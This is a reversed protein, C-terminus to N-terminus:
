QSQRDRLVGAIEDMEKTADKKANFEYEERDREELKELVKKRKTKEILKIKEEEASKELVEIEKFKQIIKRKLGERYGLSVSTVQDLFNGSKALESMRLTEQLSLDRFNDIEKKAISIKQYILALAKAQQEMEIRRVKLVTELRFKFKKM